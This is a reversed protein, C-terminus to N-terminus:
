KHEAQLESLREKIVNITGVPRNMDEALQLLRMVPIPSTVKDLLSKMAFFKKNLVEILEGDSIENVSTPVDPIEKNCPTIYGAQLLVQNARRFYDHDMETWMTVTIDDEFVNPDGEKGKLIRDVPAGTFPDIISVCVQGVIVKKYRAVPETGGARAKAVIDYYTANLGM